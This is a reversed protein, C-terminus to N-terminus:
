LDTEPNRRALSVVWIFFLAYLAMAGLTRILTQVNGPILAELESKNFFTVTSTAEDGVKVDFSYTTTTSTVSLESLSSSASAFWGFPVKAMLESKKNDLVAQSSNSPVFFFRGVDFMANGFWGFDPDSFDYTSSVYAGFMSFDTTGLLSITQERTAGRDTWGSVPVYDWASTNDYVDGNYYYHWLYNTADEGTDFDIGYVTGVRAYFCSSLDTTIQTTSTAIDVAYILGTAVVTGGTEPNSTMGERVTIGINMNRNGTQQRWTSVVQCVVAEAEPTWELSVHTAYLNSRGFSLYSDFGIGLVTEFDQAHAVNPLLLFVILLIRRM